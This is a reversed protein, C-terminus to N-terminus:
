PKDGTLKEQVKRWVTYAYSAATSNKIGAAVWGQLTNVEFLAIVFGASLVVVLWIWDPVQVKASTFIKKVVSVFGSTMAVMVINVGFLDFTKLLDGIDILM